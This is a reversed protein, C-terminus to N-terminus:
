QGVLVARVRQARMRKSRRSYDRRPRETAATSVDRPGAGLRLEGMRVLVRRMTSYTFVGGNPAPIGADNLRNALQEISQHGTRHEQILPALEWVRANFHAKRNGLRSAVHMAVSFTAPM